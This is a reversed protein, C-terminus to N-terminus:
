EVEVAARWCELFPGRQSALTRILTLKTRKASRVGGGDTHSAMYDGQLYIHMRCCSSNVSTELLKVLEPDCVPESRSAHVDIEPVGNKRAWRNFNMVFVCGPQLLAANRDANLKMDVCFFPGPGDGPLAREAAVFAAASVLV